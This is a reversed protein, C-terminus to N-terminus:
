GLGPKTRKSVRSRRGGAQKAHTQAAIAGWAHDREMQTHLESSFGTACLKAECFSQPEEGSQSESMAGSAVRWKQWTAARERRSNCRGVGDSCFLRPGRRRLDAGSAVPTRAVQKKVDHIVDSISLPHGVWILAHWHDPMLVYGCLLFGLRQRAGELADTLV